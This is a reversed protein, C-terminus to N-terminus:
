AHLHDIPRHDTMVQNGKGAEPANDMKAAALSFRWPRLTTLLADLAEDVQWAHLWFGAIQLNIVWNWAVWLLYYNQDWYLDGAQVPSFHLRSERREEREANWGRRSRFLYGMEAEAERFLQMNQCLIKICCNQGKCWLAFNVEVWHMTKFDVGLKPNGHLLMAFVREAEAQRGWSFDEEKRRRQVLGADESGGEREREEHTPGPIFGWM